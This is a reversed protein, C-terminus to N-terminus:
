RSRAPERRSVTVLPISVKEAVDELIAKWRADVTGGDVLNPSDIVATVVDKRIRVYDYLIEGAKAKRVTVKFSIGNKQLGPLMSALAESPRGGDPCEQSLIQLIDLNANM